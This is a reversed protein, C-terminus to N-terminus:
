GGSDNSGNMRTAAENLEREISPLMDAVFSEL